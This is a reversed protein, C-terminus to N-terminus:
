AESGRWLFAHLAAATREVAAEAGPRGVALARYAARWSIHLRHFAAAQAWGLWLFRLCVHAPAVMRATEQALERFAHTATRASFGAFVVHATFPAFDRESGRLLVDEVVNLVESAANLEAFLDALACARADAEHRSPLSACRLAVMPQGADLHLAWAGEQQTVAYNDLRAAARFAWAGVVGDAAFATQELLRRPAIVEAARARAMAAFPDDEPTMLGARPDRWAGDPGPGEELRLGLRRLRAAPWRWGRDPFDLLLMLKRGFGVAHDPQGAAHDASASRHRNLIAVERLVRARNRLLRADRAEGIRYADLRRLTSQLFAEGHLALLLNLARGKRDRWADGAAVADRVGDGSGAEGVAGAVPRRLWTADGFDLPRSAYSAGDDDSVRFLRPLAALDAAANALPADAFALYGRLQLAAAQAEASLGVSPTADGVLFARPLGEGLRVHDFRRRRGVPAPPWIADEAIRRRAVAARTRLRNLQLLMGQIDYPLDVGRSTLRLGVAEGRRPTALERYRGLGPPEAFPDHPAEGEGRFVLDIVREVGEIASIARFFVDPSEAPEGVAGAEGFLVEPADFVREPTIFGDGAVPGAVPAAGLMLRESCALIAAALREPTQRRRVEVVAELRCPLPTALAVGDVDECLNRRAHFARRAETLAAGRWDPRAPAVFLRWLGRRDQPASELPAAFVRRALHCDQTLAAALDRATVPRTPLADSPPHLGLAELPVPGDEEVLLDAEPFAARHALETLAFCFQEIIAVGPDHVNYDSWLKRSHREVTDLGRRRLAGFSAADAM